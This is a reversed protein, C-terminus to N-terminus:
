LKLAHMCRYFHAVEGKKLDIPLKDGAAIRQTSLLKQTKNLDSKHIAYGDVASNNFPPLNIKSKIDKALIRNKADILIVEESGIKNKKIKRLLNFISSKTLPKKNM